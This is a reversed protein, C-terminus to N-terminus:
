YELFRWRHSVFAALDPSADVLQQLEESTAYGILAHDDTSQPSLVVENLGPYHLVYWTEGTQPDKLDFREATRTPDRRSASMSVSVSRMGPDANRFGEPTSWHHSTSKGTRGIPFPPVSEPVM